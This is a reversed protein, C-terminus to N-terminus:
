KDRKYHDYRHIIIDKKFKKALEFSHATGKSIGDWFAIGFDCMKWIEENRAFGARKGYKEWNAPIVILDTEAIEAFNEALRDIGLAGGSVITIDEPCYVEFLKDLTNFVWEMDDISRSGVVAIKPM